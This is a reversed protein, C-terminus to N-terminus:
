LRRKTTSQQSIQEEYAEIDQARYLVKKAPKIFKPGKGSWRLKDISSVSSNWRLSLQEITLLPQLLSSSQTIVIAQHYDNDAPDHSIIVKPPRGRPRKLTNLEQFHAVCQSISQNFNSGMGDNTEVALNSKINRSM